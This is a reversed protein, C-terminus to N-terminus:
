AEKGKRRKKEGQKKGDNREKKKPFPLLNVLQTSMGEGKKRKKERKEGRGKKRGKLLLFIFQHL